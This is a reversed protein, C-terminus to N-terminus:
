NSGRQGESVKNVRRYPKVEKTEKNTGGELFEFHVMQALLGKCTTVGKATHQAMMSMAQSYSFSGPMSFLEECIRKVKLMEKEDKAKEPVQEGVAIHYGKEKCYKFSISRMDDFGAKRMIKPELTSVDRDKKISLLGFCKRQIESGLHGREKDSGPNQHIIVILACKFRVALSIFFQVIGNAGEEDNVSSIYDAGGDIVILHIGSFKLFCLECIDDTFSKYNTMGLKRINYARFHDPTNELGNRKLITNVNDQQDAESQESDMIIVAKRSPNPLIKLDPLGDYEGNESLAGAALVGVLATKGAKAAASIGTINEPSAIAAGGLTITPEPRSINKEKTIRYSDFQDFTIHTKFDVSCSKLNTLCGNVAEKVKTVPNDWTLSM